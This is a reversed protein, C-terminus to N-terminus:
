RLGPLPLGRARKPRTFRASPEGSLRGAPLTRGCLVLLLDSAAGELPVGSGLSWDMDTARLEIGDLDTGFFKVSRDDLSGPLVPRLREETVLRALGLPVTIDLGHILDHALAGAYGGGPPKWPHGTNSRVAETLDMPSLVAADQRATRDAMENFRGRSKALELAFRGRGYRFPMTIHAVVERVRWGACLTPEDWGPEPLGALVEALEARQAAIMDRVTDM